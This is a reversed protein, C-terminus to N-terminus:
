TRPTPHDSVVGEKDSWRKGIRHSLDRSRNITFARRWEIGAGHFQDCNKVAAMTGPTKDGLVGTETAVPLADFDDQSRLSTVMPMPWGYLDNESRNGGRVAL